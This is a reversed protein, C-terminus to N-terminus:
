YTRHCPQGRCGQALYKRRETFNLGLRVLLTVKDHIYRMVDEGPEQVRALMMRTLEVTDAEPLFLERFLNEVKGATDLEDYVRTFWAKASGTLTRRATEIAAADDLGHIKVSSKWTTLWERAAKTDNGGDYTVTLDLPLSITTRNPTTINAALVNIANSNAAIAAATSANNTAAQQTFQALLAVLDNYSLPNTPPPPDTKGRTMDAIVRSVLYVDFYFNKVYIM